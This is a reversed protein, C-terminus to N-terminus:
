RARQLREAPGIEAGTMEAVFAPVILDIIASAVVVRPLEDATERCSHPRQITPTKRLHESRTSLLKGRAKQLRHDKSCAAALAKRLCQALEDSM